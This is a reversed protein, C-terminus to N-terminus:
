FYWDIEVLQDSLHFELFSRISNLLDKSDLMINTITISDCLEREIGFASGLVSAIDYQLAQGLFSRM